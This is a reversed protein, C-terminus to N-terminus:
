FWSLSRKWLRALTSTVTLASVLPWHTPHCCHGHIHVALNTGFSYLVQLELRHLTTRRFHRRLSRIPGYSVVPRETHKLCLLVPRSIRRAAHFIYHRNWIRCNFCIFPLLFHSITHTFYCVSHLLSLLPLFIFWGFLFGVFFDSPDSEAGDFVEAMRDAVFERVESTLWYRITQLSSVM